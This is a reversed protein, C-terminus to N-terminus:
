SEVLTPLIGPLAGPLLDEFCHGPSLIALAKYPTAIATKGEYKQGEDAQDRHNVEDVHPRNRYFNGGIGM